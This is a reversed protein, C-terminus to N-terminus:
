EAGNESSAIALTQKDPIWRERLRLIPWEIARSAVVGLVVAVVAEVLPLSWWTITSPIHLKLFVSQIPSTVSHHWLYITYSYLGIWAVFRYVRTQRFSIAHGILFLITAGAGFYVLTFGVSLMIGSKVPFVLLVIMAVAVCALLKLKGRLVAQFRPADFFSLWALVVGFVMSDLRTHTYGYIGKTLGLAVLVIRLVLVAACIAICIRVFSKQSIKHSMWLAVLGALVIYFHEEVALSWTHSLSTGLYNQLNTVNQVLFSSIPHRRVIVQFFLYFYYSPWIKLARRAFFRGFRVHGTRTFESLLLGGVLFGSLVFFLDVGAWGVSCIYAFPAAYHPIDVLGFFHFAMVALIAIGRVFDLEIRRGRLV